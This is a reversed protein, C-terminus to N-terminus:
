RASKSTMSPVLEEKVARALLAPSIVGQSLVFDNFRKRDFQAGLRLEADRRIELLRNYGVFYATAQGPALFTYREVEQTAMADSLMVDERLVRYAEDKTITGLQLGPDLYARAARMMRHQLTILQAELPEYPQLEAEAYLGWGEVNVSNFSFIARAISVGKEIMASFQLEHGPRGEHATLTWSAAEFTFDDFQKTEGAKGPIRLPLQFVGKEGTNGILRPPQMNPAPIAASEAETALKIEMDRDPLTVIKERRIIEEVERIRAQYHPLIADGVFQQQKLERIVDRYDTVNWGKQKAVVPAISQMHNQTEKFATKARSQLEELPMDVGVQELAFAYLEPPQRFDTRARPVISQRVFDDYAALQKKLEEYPKEYGAIQYKQFLKGIGDIFTANNALDKDVEAKVPGILNPAMREKVRAQALEAIPTFGPETGAYKRLRVLAAPRREAAVRDDLLARLGQFVTRTINFYPIQYKRSLENGRIHDRAAKILIEIDQRVAPDKEAALRQELTAISQRVAEMGREEYGPTLDFIQEDVGQVGFSAAQEPAFKGMVQLLVAANENSRLAWAPAQPPAQRAAAPAAAPKGTPAAANAPAISLTTTALIALLRALPAVGRPARPVPPRVPIV